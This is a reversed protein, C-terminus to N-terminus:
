LTTSTSAAASPPVSATSTSESITVVPYNPLEYATPSQAPPEEIDYPCLRKKWEPCADMDSEIEWGQCAVGAVLSIIGGALVVKAKNNSQRKTMFLM